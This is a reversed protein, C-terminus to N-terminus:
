RGPLKGERMDAELTDDDGYYRGDIMIQPVTTRGGSVRKMERFNRTPIKIGGPLMIIEHNEFPIGAERLM